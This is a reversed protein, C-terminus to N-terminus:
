ERGVLTIGMNRRKFKCPGSVSADDPGAKVSLIWCGELDM